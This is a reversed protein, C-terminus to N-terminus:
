LLVLKMKAIINLNNVHILFILLNTVRLTIKKKQYHSSFNVKSIFLHPTWPEFGPGQVYQANDWVLHTLSM